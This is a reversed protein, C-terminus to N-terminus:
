YNGEGIIYQYGCKGGTLARPVIRCYGYIKCVPLGSVACSGSLEYNNEPKYNDGELTVRIYFAQANNDRQYEYPFFYAYKGGPDYPVKSLYGQLDRVLCNNSVTSDSKIYVYQPDGSNYCPYHGNDDYYLQVAKYIAEADKIRRSDRGKTRASNLSTMVVTALLGIIAIVVLLEILTFAKNKSYVDQFDFM